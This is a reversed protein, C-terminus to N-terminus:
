MKIKRYIKKHNNKHKHQKQKIQKTKIKTRVPENYGSPIRIENSMRKAIEFLMRYNTSNRRNILCQEILTNLKSIDISSLEEKNDIKKLDERM